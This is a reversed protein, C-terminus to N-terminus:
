DITDAANENSDNSGIQELAEFYRDERGARDSNTYQKGSNDASFDRVGSASDEKQEIV